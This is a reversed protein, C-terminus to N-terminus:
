SFTNEIMIKILDELNVDLKELIIEEKTNPNECIYISPNEITAIEHDSYGICKDM